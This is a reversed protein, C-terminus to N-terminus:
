WQDKSLTHVIPGGRARGQVAIAVSMASIPTALKQQPALLDDRSGEDGECDGWESRAGEVRDCISDQSRSHHYMGVNPKLVDNWPRWHGQPIIFIIHTAIALM